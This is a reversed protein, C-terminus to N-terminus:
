KKGDEDNGGNEYIFVWAGAAVAIIVLGIVLINEMM